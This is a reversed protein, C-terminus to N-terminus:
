KLPPLRTTLVIRDHGFPGHNLELKDFYHDMGGGLHGFINSGVFSNSIDQNLCVLGSFPKKNLDVTSSLRIIAFDYGYKKELWKPHFIFDSANIRQEGGEFKKLGHKGVHVKIRQAGEVCHAATM